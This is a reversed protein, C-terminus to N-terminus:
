PLDIRSHHPPPRHRSREPRSGARWHLRPQRLGVYRPGDPRVPPRAAPGIGSRTPAAAITELVARTAAGDHMTASCGGPSTALRHPGSGHRGHRGLLGAGRGPVPRGGPRAARGDQALWSADRDLPEPEGLVRTKGPVVAFSARPM